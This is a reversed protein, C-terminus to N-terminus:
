LFGARLLTYLQLLALRAGTVEMIICVLNTNPKGLTCLFLLICSGTKNTFSRDRRLILNMMAALM